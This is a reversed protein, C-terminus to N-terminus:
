KNLLIKEKWLKYKSHNNNYEKRSKFKLLLNIKIIKQPFKNMNLQRLILRCYIGLKKLGAGIVRYYCTPPSM